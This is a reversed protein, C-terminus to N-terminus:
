RTVMLCHRIDQKMEVLLVLYQMEMPVLSIIEIQVVVMEMLPEVRRPNTHEEEQFDAFVSM